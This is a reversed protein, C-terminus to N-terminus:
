LVVHQELNALIGRHKRQGIGIHLSDIQSRVLALLTNHQKKIAPIARGTTRLFRSIKRIM